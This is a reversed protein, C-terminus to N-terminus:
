RERLVATLKREGSEGTADFFPPVHTFPPPPPMTKVVGKERARALGVMADRIFEVPYRPDNKFHEFDEVTGFRVVADVIFHRM